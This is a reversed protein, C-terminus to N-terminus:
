AEDAICEEDVRGHQDNPGATRNVMPHSITFACRHRRRSWVSHMIPQEERVISTLQSGYLDKSLTSATEYADRLAAEYNVTTWARARFKSFWRRRDRGVWPINPLRGSRRRRSRAIFFGILLIVVATIVSILLSLERDNASTKAALYEPRKWKPRLSITKHQPSERQRRM